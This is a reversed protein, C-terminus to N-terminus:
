RMNGNIGLFTDISSQTIDELKINDTSRFNSESVEVQRFLKFQSASKLPAFINKSETFSNVLKRVIVLQDGNM